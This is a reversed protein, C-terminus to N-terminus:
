NKKSCKQVLLLLADEVFNTTYFFLALYICYIAIFFQVMLIEMQKLIRCDFSFHLYGQPHGCSYM